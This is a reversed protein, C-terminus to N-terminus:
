AVAIVYIALACVGLFGAGVLGDWGKLWVIAGLVALTIITRAWIQHVRESAMTM